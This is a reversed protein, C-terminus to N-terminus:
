LLIGGLLVTDHLWLVLSEVESMRKVVIQASDMTVREGSTSIMENDRLSLRSSSLHYPIVSSVYDM